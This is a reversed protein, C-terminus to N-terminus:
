TVERTDVVLVDDRDPMDCLIHWSWEAPHDYEHDDYAIRLTIEAIRKM